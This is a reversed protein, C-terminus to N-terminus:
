DMECVLTIRKTDLEDRINTAMNTVDSLHSYSVSGLRYVSAKDLDGSPSRPQVPRNSIYDRIRSEVDSRPQPKQLEFEFWVYANNVDGENTLPIINIGPPINGEDYEIVGAYMEALDRFDEISLRDTGTRMSIRGPTKDGEQKYPYTKISPTDTIDAIREMKASILQPEQTIAELALECVGSPARDSTDRQPIKDYTVM